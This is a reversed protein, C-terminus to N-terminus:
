GGVYLVATGYPVLSCCSSSMFWTGGDGAVDGQWSLSVGLGPLGFVALTGVVPIVWAAVRM